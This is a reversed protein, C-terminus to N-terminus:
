NQNAFGPSSNTESHDEDIPTYDHLPDTITGEGGPSGGGGYTEHRYYEGSVTKTSHRSNDLYNEPTLTDTLSSRSADFSYTNSTKDDLKSQTNQDIYTSSYGSWSGQSYNYEKDLSENDNSTRDIEGSGKITEDFSEKSRIGTQDITYSYNLNASYDEHQTFKKNWDSSENEDWNESVSWGGYGNSMWGIYYGNESDYETESFTYFWDILTLKEISIM